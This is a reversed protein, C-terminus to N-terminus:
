AVKKATFEQSRKGGEKASRTGKIQDGNVSGKWYLTREGKKTTMKTTFSFSNGDVKGDAIVAGGGKKGGLLKGELQVGEAHLELTVPKAKAKGKKNATEAATVAWNGDIQGAFLGVSATLFLITKLIM